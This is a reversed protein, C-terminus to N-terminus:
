EHGIAHGDTPVLSNMSAELVTVLVVVIYSLCATVLADKVCSRPEYQVTAFVMSPQGVEPVM